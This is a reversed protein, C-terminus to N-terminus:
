MFLVKCMQAETYKYKHTYTYIHVCLCVCDYCVFSVALNFIIMSNTHMTFETNRPDWVCMQHGKTVHHLLYARPQSKLEQQRKKLTIFFLETIDFIGELELIRVRQRQKSFRAGRAMVCRRPNIKCLQLVIKYTDIVYPYDLFM